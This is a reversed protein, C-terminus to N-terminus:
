FLGARPNSPNRKSFEELLKRSEADLEKPYHIQAVVYQDGRGEGQRHPVGKGKLRLKQGGQTGPPIKMKISGDITPVEVQAGFVAEDLALPLSLYIDDGERTFFPHPRVTVEIYLDGSPGHNPGPDGKGALRIKSGTKVGPPIKVNIKQTKGEQPLAIKTTVGRAADLFDIEMSYVRDEGRLPAGKATRARPGKAAGAAGFLDGFLDGLDEFEFKAGGPGSYTSFDFGGMPGTRYSQYFGGGPGAGAGMGGAGYMDYEQRKKKDSLTEYAESIQKFREEAAKDGKNVDPHYKKALQRYAKKIEAESSNRSVGLVAYFDKDAM